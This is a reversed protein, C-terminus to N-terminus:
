SFIPYKFKASTNLELFLEAIMCRASGGGFYEITNLASHTIKCHRSIVEKQQNTLINFASTSMVLLPENNKNKVELVNGLFKNMQNISIDIIEKGTEMFLSVLEKKECTDIIADLCIFVMKQCISMLVNTHYIPKESDTACFSCGKFNMQNCWKHFLLENTRKSLSAYAIKNERDLVMSGTGELFQSNAEYSIANNFIQKVYFNNILYDIIDQRREARRNISLMPYLWISGDSHTSIWNNPFISDPTNDKHVDAFQIVKVGSSKLVNVFTDFEFAAKKSIESELVDDQYAHQYVNDAATSSNFGFYSPRIMMITDTVQTNNM